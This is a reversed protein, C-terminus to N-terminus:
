NYPAPDNLNPFLKRAFRYLDVANTINRKSMINARHTRVTVPKINLIQSIEKDEKENAILKLVEEEKATLPEIDRQLKSLTPDFYSGGNVIIGIAKKFEEMGAGKPVYGRAGANIAQRVLKANNDASYILIKLDPFEKIFESALSIGNLSSGLRIDMIILGIKNNRVSIRAEEDKRAIAVVQILPVTELFERIGLAMLEHDEVILTNIRISDTM